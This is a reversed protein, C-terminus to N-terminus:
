VAKFTANARAIIQGDAEILADVFGLTKGSKILRPGIELWQGLAGIGVYDLTLGITVASRGDQLAAVYTLGMANDALAAIVGGHLFGRGNCHASAIRLGLRYSGPAQAAFLPEWPATVPSKRTHPAFGDPIPTDPILVDPTM